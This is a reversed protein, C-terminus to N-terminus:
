TLSHFHPPPDHSPPGAAMSGKLVREEETMQREVAQLFAQAVQEDLNNLDIEAAATDTASSVGAPAKRRSAM